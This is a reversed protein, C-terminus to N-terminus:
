NILKIELILQVKKREKQLTMSQRVFADAGGYPLSPQSIDIHDFSFREILKHRFSEIFDSEIQDFSDIVIEVDVSAALFRIGGVANVVLCLDKSDVGAFSIM